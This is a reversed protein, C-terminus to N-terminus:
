CRTDATLSGIHSPSIEERKCVSRPTHTHSSAPNEKVRLTSTEQCTPALPKDKRTTRRPMECIKYIQLHEKLEPFGDERHASSSRGTSSM